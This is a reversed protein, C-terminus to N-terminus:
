LEGRDLLEIQLDKHCLVQDESDEADLDKSCLLQQLYVSRLSKWLESNNLLLEVGHGKGYLLKGRLGNRNVIQDKSAGALSYNAKLSRQQLAARSRPM